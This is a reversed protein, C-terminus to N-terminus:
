ARSALSPAHIPEQEQDEGLGEANAIPHQIGKGGRHVCAPGQHDGFFGQQHRKDAANDQESDQVGNAMVGLGDFFRAAGLV